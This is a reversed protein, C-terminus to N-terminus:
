RYIYTNKNDIWQKAVEIDTTFEPTNVGGNKLITLASLKNSSISLKDWHNLVKVKKNNWIPKNSNGWNIILHNKFYKYKGNSKIRKSNLAASLVKASKSAIKYPYIFPKM